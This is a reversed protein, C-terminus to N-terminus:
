WSADADGWADRPSSAHAISLMKGVEWIREAERRSAMGRAEAMKTGADAWTPCWISWRSLLMRIM